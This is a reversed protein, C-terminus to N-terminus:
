VTTFCDRHAQRSDEWRTCSSHLGQPLCNPLSSSLFYLPPPIGMAAWHHCVWSTDTLVWTQDRVKSLPNLIWRQQSSNTPWLSLKSGMNSHSHHLSTAAAGIRIQGRAQSSCYATSTARYYIFFFLFYLPPSALILQFGYPHAPSEYSYVSVQTLDQPSALTGQRSSFVYM